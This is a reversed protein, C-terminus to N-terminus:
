ATEALPARAGSLELSVELLANWPQGPRAGKVIQDARAASRVLRGIDELSRGRAARRFLEQRSRWVGADHLAQDISRGQHMRVVIDALSLTERVLTWLVLVEAEGERELGRLVRVTRSVDGALAADSLQFIDFRAGDAVSERIVEATVQGDSVLLALKDIEQKAALLNGEVRAALLELSEDDASLKAQQLRHRLWMPLQERRPPKLEVWVAAEALATAWKSRATTSDLAPTIIVIVNGTDPRGALATLFRAGSEGPKGTPLRLEVLLRSAFLSMNQLGAAFGDWDFSREAIHAEREGCGDRRAQERIAELAEDVLLPEDGALVYLPGLGKGVHAALRDAALKM